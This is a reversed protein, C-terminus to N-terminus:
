AAEPKDGIETVYGFQDSFTQSRHLREHDLSIVVFFKQLVVPVPRPRHFLADLRSVPM